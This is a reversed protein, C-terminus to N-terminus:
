PFPIGYHYIVGDSLVALTEGNPNFAIKTTRYPLPIKHIIKGTEVDSFYLSISDINSYLGVLLSNDPSFEVDYYFSAIRTEDKTEDEVPPIEMLKLKTGNIDWIEIKDTIVALYTWDTSFVMRYSKDTVPIENEIEGTKTNRIVVKNEEDLAVQNNTPSFIASGYWGPIITILSSSTLNWLHIGDYDITAATHGDPSVSVDRVYSLNTPITNINKGTKGDWLSISSPDNESVTVLTEANASLAYYQGSSNFDGQISYQYKGSIGDWLHIINWDNTALLSGDSSYVLSNNGSPLFLKQTIQCNKTDLIEITQGRGNWSILTKKTLKNFYLSLPEEFICLVQKKDNYITGGEDNLVLFSNQENPLYIVDGEIRDIVQQTSADIIDTVDIQSAYERLAIQSGDYSIGSITKDEFSLKKLLTGTTADVFSATYGKEPYDSAGSFVIQDNNIFTFHYIFPFPCFYHNYLINGSEIEYLAFNLTAGDCPAYGGGSSMIVLTKGNPSFGLQVITYGEIQNELRREIKDESLNW